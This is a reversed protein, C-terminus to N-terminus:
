AVRGRGKCKPCPAAQGGRSSLRGSGKCAQCQGVGPSPRYLQQMLSVQQQAAGAPLLDDPEDSRGSM